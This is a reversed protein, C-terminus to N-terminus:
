VNQETNTIEYSFDNKNLGEGVTLTEINEKAIQIAERETDAEIIIYRMFMIQIEYKYEM